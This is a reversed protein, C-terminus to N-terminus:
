LKRFQIRSLDSIKKIYLKLSLFWVKKHYSKIWSGTSCNQSCRRDWRCRWRDYCSRREPTSTFVKNRPFIVIRDARLRGPSWPTPSTGPQGSGPGPPHNLLLINGGSYLGGLSFTILVIPKPNHWKCIFVMSRPSDNATEKKEGM